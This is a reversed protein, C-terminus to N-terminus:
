VKASLKPETVDAFVDMLQDIVGKSLALEQVAPNNQGMTSLTSAALVKVETSISPSNIFGLLCEMGGHKAFVISM